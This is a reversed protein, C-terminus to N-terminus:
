PVEYTHERNISRAPISNSNFKPDIFNSLESTRTEM